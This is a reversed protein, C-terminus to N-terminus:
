LSGTLNTRLTYKIQLYRARVYDYSGTNFDIDGSGSGNLDIYTPLVTDFIKYENSSLDATNGYRMEFTQRTPYQNDASSTYVSIGAAGQITSAYSTKIQKVVKVSGQDIVASEITGTPNTSASIQLGGAISSTINTWTAGGATHFPNASSDEYGYSTAINNTGDFRGGGLRYNRFYDLNSAIGPLTYQADSLASSGSVTTNFSASLVQATRHTFAAASSNFYEQLGSGSLATNPSTPRMAANPTFVCNNLQGYSNSGLSDYYNIPAGDETNHIVCNSLNPPYTNTAFRNGGTSYGPMTSNIFLCSFFQFQRAYFGTSTNTQVCNEFVCGTDLYRNVELYSLSTYWNPCNKIYCRKFNVRYLDNSSNQLANEVDIIKFDEVVWLNGNYFASDGTNSADYIVDGDGKFTIFHTTTGAVLRDTYTGAGVVISRNGTAGAEVASIAAPITKFPAAATGANVDDGDVASVYFDGSKTWAM